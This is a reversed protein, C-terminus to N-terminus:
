EDEDETKIPEWESVRRQVAILGSSNEAREIASQRSPSTYIVINEDTRYNNFTNGWEHDLLRLVNAEAERMRANEATLHDVHALLDDVARFAAMHPWADGASLNAQQVRRIEALREDSLGSM